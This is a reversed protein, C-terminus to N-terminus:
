RSRYEKLRKEYELTLYYGCTELEPCFGRYLCEPVCVSYIEPEEEKIEDLFMKWAERTESSAHSCLRKRSINILSQTNALNEHNVLEGQPLSDRDVDEGIIDPRQTSIYPQVFVHHRVLHMSSWYKIGKWIWRFMKVRIPSHEALLMRKKWRSSPEGEGPEKGATTRAVDAVERWTGYTNRIEVKV